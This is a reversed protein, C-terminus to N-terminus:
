VPIHEKTQVVSLRPSSVSASAIVSLRLGPGAANRPRAPPGPWWQFSSFAKFGVIVSTFSQNLWSYLPNCVFSALEPTASFYKPGAQFAPELGFGNQRHRVRCRQKM